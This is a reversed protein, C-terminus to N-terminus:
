TISVFMKVFGKMEDITGISVRCWERQDYDWVRIQYGKEETRKLIMKGDAPAPFFVCNTYSKGYFINRSDLYDTLVKRAEANKKRTLDKFATDNISATVAALAAQNINVDSGMQQKHLHKIRDPNAVLYGIRLGALGLIKSFTKSVIVDHGKQVLSVMSVQQAPELFELYAEDAYVTVRKSVDAVFSALLDNDLITGTPNNPNVVFMMKTDPRIASAMAEPNHKLNEDLNIKDWTAGFVQAYEMLLRFTPFASIVRGGELGASLGALCLLESSGNGLLIHDPSVGEVEALLKKFTRGEEFAYRNCEKLSKRIADMARSSPGYPNENSGLRILKRSPDPIHFREAESVPSAYLQAAVTSALPMAATVAFAKKLWDRRSTM